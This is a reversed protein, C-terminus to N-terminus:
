YFNHKREDLSGRKSACKEIEEQAFLFEKMKERNRSKKELKHKLTRVSIPAMAIQKRIRCDSRSSTTVGISSDLGIGKWGRVGKVKRINISRTNQVLM